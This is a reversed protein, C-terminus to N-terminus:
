ILNPIQSVDVSKFMSKESDVSLFEAKLSLEVIEFNSIKQSIGIGTKYELECSWFVSM